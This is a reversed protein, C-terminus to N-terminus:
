LVMPSLCNNARLRRPAGVSAFRLRLNEAVARFWSVMGLLFDFCQHAIAELVFGQVMFMSDKIGFPKSAQRIRFSGFGLLGLGSILITATVTKFRM